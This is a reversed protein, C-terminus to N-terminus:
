APERRDAIAGLLFGAVAGLVTNLGHPLPSAVVTVVVAVAAAMVGPRDVLAPILLVVFVLPVAFAVDIGPPIASGLTIGAITGGWWTAAVGLGVGLYYWRRAVPDPNESFYHLSLAATQDTMLYPLVFRWRVPFDKFGPALAISYLAFRVNVVLGTLVVVLWSAHQEVLSLMSLQAAGALV